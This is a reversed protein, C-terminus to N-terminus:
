DLFFRSRQRPPDPPSKENHHTRALWRDRALTFEQTTMTVQHHLVFPNQQSCRFFRGDIEIKISSYVSTYHWSHQFCRVISELLIAYLATSQKQDTLTGLAVLITAGVLSLQQM